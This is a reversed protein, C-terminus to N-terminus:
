AWWARILVTAMTRRRYGDADRGAQGTKRSPRFHAVNAGTQADDPADRGSDTKM